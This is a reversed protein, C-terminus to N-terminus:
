QTFSLPNQAVGNYKVMFHVHPGTSRGTSGMLGLVEGRSVRQGYSVDLRSMHGYVTEYGNGHDIMIHLGLGFPDWGARTVIGDTCALLPPMAMGTPSAVDLGNHYWSFYQTIIRVTTPWVCYNKNPSASSGTGTSASGDAYIVPPPTVIEPVKGGPIVLDTGIALRSTDLLYNFDAIAQPAVDYKAAISSLSDGSEVTHILGSVPPITLEQGIKLISNDTLSNVYKIADSSIKFKEGISFLTDGSEVRYTFSETRQRIDPVETLALEKKPIIDTSTKLYDASVEKSVVLNTSSLVEGFMFVAFASMMVVFLAVPRGLKGRSWILKKVVFSKIENPLTVLWLFLVGSTKLIFLIKKTFYGFLSKLFDGWINGFQELKNHGDPKFGEFSLQSFRKSVPRKINFLM